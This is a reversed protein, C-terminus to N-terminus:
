FFDDSWKIGMDELESSVGSGGGKKEDKILVTASINYIPYGLASLVMCWCLM